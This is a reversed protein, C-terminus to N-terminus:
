SNTGGGLEVTRKVTGFVTNVIFNATANEGSFDLDFNSIGTIRDDQTLAEEIRRTLDARVEEKRSGILDQTEMGMNWSYILHQFRETSLILEIAQVVADLGDVKGRMRGDSVKFTLSPVYDPINDGYPRLMSARNM